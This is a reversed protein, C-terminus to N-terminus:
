SAGPAQCWILRRVEYADSGVQDVAARLQAESCVLRRCWGRVAINNSIDIASSATEESKLGFDSKM